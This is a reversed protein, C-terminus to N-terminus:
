KRSHADSRPLSFFQTKDNNNVIMYIKGSSTHIMEIHRADGDAIFKCQSPSVSTWGLQGDGLLVTGVSANYRGFLTEQHYSNGVLILDTHTDNNLDDVLVDNITSVQATEPLEKKLFKKGQQNILIVSALSYAKAEYAGALEDDKFAKNLTADAYQSFTEFRRKIPPIQDIIVLRNHVIFWDKEVPNYYTIIPDISGNKDFDKATIKVPHDETPQFFSNKGTNGAIIDIFGDRNLDATGLCSWWGDSKQLGFENTAEVFTSGTNKFIRIPMWEGALILDTKKDNDIDAWLASSVMGPTELGANLQATVDTFKRNDNRLVYSRPSLPYERPKIRGGVFLDLDGDADYDASIVCSASTRIEPLAETSVTFKGKGDNFYLQHVPADELSSACSGAMYLDVDGDGDADFFHADGDERTSDSTLLSRSFTGDKLQVFLSSSAGAEGGICFDDLNDNNVDGTEVCPGFRSLEHLLTRTIKIDSPSREQHIFQVPDIREFYFGDSKEEQGSTISPKASRHTFQLVTDASVNYYEAVSGDMWIIKVSDIVKNQGIGFHLSTTVSSQFGRYPTLEQYQGKGQAYIWVKQNFSSTDASQLTLYHSKEKRDNLQNEYLIVEQDINNTVLDLDGDKDFDAYAAGNSFTPLDIGWEKTKDEFVLSGTNKFIYNTLKVEPLKEFEQNLKKSRAEQTGFPSISNSGFFIFDLDTVDKRYGNAIFLDKWGDNDFDAFLPAWSWDTRSVGAMFAIESFLVKENEVKGRNLQLTNRMYQPQYGMQESMHFHDYNQGPTMMKQRKHDPPLMDVVAIDPLADNNFDAIDMGMGNHTQHKLYEGASNRFTGNQQNIWILDNSMFDNSVYVDPWSDQNIDCINIGLGYGEILIGAERSINTYTNDGNNRYLRDTSSAEGNLRKARLNNRNFSELANTVLYLDLDGDKDYDFFAGMTGYGEDDIGYESAMEKFQPIGDKLGQNVFLLDRMQDPATKGAVALFIDQLGDRNIDVVSVGTIWRDTTVGSEKTIDKFRLNGQNLYLRSSVQNGGFFLDELGDHNFDGVGVGSGNYIYEFSLASFTDNTVIENKFDLGLEGGEHIKFLKEKKGCSLLLACYGSLTIIRLM